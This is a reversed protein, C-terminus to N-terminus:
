RRRQTVLRDLAIAQPGAGTTRMAHLAHRLGERLQRVDAYRAAIEDALAHAFFIRLEHPLDLHAVRDWPDFTRDLKLALVDQTGAGGYPCRGTLLEFALVGVAFVDTWPGLPGRRLQEPAMYAPTGFLMSTSTRSETFKALGFDLVKVFLGHGAVAQLMINEPKIDRHVIQRDHAAELAALVQMLIAEVEDLQLPESLSARREIFDWLNEANEVFEMALFPAGRYEGFQYLRVINPHSLRALAQAEVALKQHKVAALEATSADLDLIKIAAVMGVPLQLARYVKGFGGSGIIGIILYDGCRQGILSDLPESEAYLGAPIFQYGRVLCPRSSCAEGVVGRAHCSPCWGEEHSATSGTSGMSSRMSASDMRATM